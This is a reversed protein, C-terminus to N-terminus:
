QLFPFVFDSLYNDSLEIKCNRVFKRGFLCPSYLLHVIEEISIEDYTQIGNKSAYKYKMGEWNTFTTAGEALNVTTEIENEFKNLKIITYYFIEEPAYVNQFISQITKQKIYAIKEILFRNLIIWQSAKGIRERPFYELLSKCNTLIKESLCINLFGKTTNTLKNYMIKFSKLPICSGSLLVFKYNDTDHEYAYQFMKNQAHILSVDAYKTDICEPLKYEELFYLPKNEKYHIYINFLTKDVNSFFANWLEENEIQDYILYCFAIKKM